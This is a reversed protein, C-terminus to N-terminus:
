YSDSSIVEGGARTSLQQYVGLQAMGFSYVYTASNFTAGDPLANGNGDQIGSNFTWSSVTSKIFRVSGDCFAFNCGGPHKSSAATIAYYGFPSALAQAPAGLNIDM